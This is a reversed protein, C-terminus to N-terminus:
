TSTARFFPSNYSEVGRTTFKLHWSTKCPKILLFASTCNLCNSPFEFFSSIYWDRVPLIRLDPCLAFYICIYQIPLLSSLHM